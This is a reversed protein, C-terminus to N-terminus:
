HRRLWNRVGSMIRHLYALALLSRHPVAYARRMYAAPPFLHQQILKLKSRWGPLGRLDSILIHVKTRGHQLFAATPEPAPGNTRLRDIWGPPIETAFRDRAEAIGSACVSRLGKARTVDALEERRDPSMATVLLHIDYLWILRNSNYHHAVRHLCALLLAHRDSPGRAAGGLVPLPVGDAELEDFHLRDAFVHPNAVKWHIDVIHTFRYRDQREYQFQHTVLEGSFDTGPQYGLARLV